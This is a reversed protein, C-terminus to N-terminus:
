GSRSSNGTWCYKDNRRVMFIHHPVELCYVTGNFDEHVSETYNRYTSTPQMSPGYKSIYVRYQNSSRVTRQGKIEVEEGQLAKINLTASQGTMIALTQVDDALQKSNTYYEWSNKGSAYYGDGLLLGNLLAKSNEPGMSRCWAPIFKDNASGFQMLYNSIQHNKIYRYNEEGQYITYDIGMDGLIQNVKESVRQKHASIRVNRANDIHGEALYIGLFTLWDNMSYRKETYTRMSNKWPLTVEPLIFLNEEEYNNICDRKYWVKKNVIDKAETLEYKGNSKTKIYMKHNMTTMLSILGNDIEYMEGEHDFSHVATPNNWELENTEPDLTAVMDETTITTINKWGETTLVEHDKSLCFKDGVAVPRIKRLAVKAFRADDENRDVIANHVIAPEDEKYVISTDTYVNREDKGKAIPMYKGILVDDAGIHQGKQVIGNALKDYNASKLNETKSADPNGLEEKQELETKYFTFKCGDFLGREIAARNVILSDEQNFGTYCMIAVMVNNGNPFVYKNVATRVLPTENTYQLFTEKDMRFPWNLSYYGCTQKAQSTQYTVRPAQNHNGFPATLATIGLLAQPIDLHTYEICENSQNNKLTDFNPCIYCIEQEEPTIFEIKQEKLLDDISKTGKYLATIDAQTVATGQQYPQKTQDGSFYEADRRNNYVIMLPRTIRGNDVFFQVENQTNDWYITTHPNIAMARRKKRYKAVLALSDMTYGMLYGNVYVRAFNGRYIQLPTLRSEAIVDPDASITKRLVESSSAPAITAFMAMQKNIGVKEGEPPSHNVCIYGIASMAVQRMESARESQKASDASTATVQRMTALMNLQNKRNLQQTALRNVVNRKRITLNSKNGSVITQVILREFDDAYIASKVLNALNVQSFSANNFDRAIRRKIPLVVTQNFFTKFTKAYNDGASHIRKNRYSDRNTEPIYQLHVLITKRILLGLFKLKDHRASENMGIHPLCYTDFIRLVDEIANHYNEPKKELELYGYLEKPILDVIAKLAEQQKYMNRFDPKGYKAETSEILINLLSKNAPSDFDFVIWEMMERDSTWGLARFVLYFPIPVNNLKDRMIEITLTSDKSYKIILYDSNQYNDGPKSIYECRVLSKGYGENRYIKPQNFTINETCDVAWEGKVIFYGGPDSPDEGMQMLAEKSKGYTNCMISGKIIPVKSIRFDKVTDKREIVSGDKLYAKAIVDCSILLPGSYVKERQLAVKPYLITEKGTRYTLTTPPRLRIETPIVECYIREIERDEDTAHRKNALEKYIKFGQKIIQSIGNRYFHNASEIHHSNLGKQKLLSDGVLFLDDPNISYDFDTIKLSNTSM